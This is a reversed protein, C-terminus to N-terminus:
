LTSGDHDIVLTKAWFYRTEEVAISRMNLRSSM